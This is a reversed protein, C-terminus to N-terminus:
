SQLWIYFFCYTFCFCCVTETCPEVEALYEPGKFGDGRYCNQIVSQFGVEVDSMQFLCVASSGTDEATSTFTAVLTLGTVSSDDRVQLPPDFDVLTMDRLYSHVENNVSCELRLEVISYMRRDGTCIRLVHSTIEGAQQSPRRFFFYVHGNFHYARIFHLAFNDQYAPLIQIFSSASTERSAKEFTQLSRVSFLGVSSRLADVGVTSYAAGVYLLNSDTFGPAVLIVVSKSRDNPVVPRYVYEAASFDVTNIKACSGYYLTGCAILVKSDIDLALAQSSSDSTKGALTCNLSFSSSGTCDVIDQHPGLMVASDQQLNEDLKYVTNVGGVYLKRSISDFVFNRLSQQSFVSVVSADCLGQSLVSSVIVVVVLLHMAQSRQQHCAHPM